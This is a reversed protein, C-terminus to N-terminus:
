VTEPLEAREYDEDLNADADRYMEPTDEADRRSSPPSAIVENHSLEGKENPIFVPPAEKNRRKSLKLYALAAVSLTAVVLIAIVLIVLPSRGSSVEGSCADVTASTGVDRCDVGM